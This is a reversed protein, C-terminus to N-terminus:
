TASATCPPPPPRKSGILADRERLTRQNAAITADRERVMQRLTNIDALAELACADM